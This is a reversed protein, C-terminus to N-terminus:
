RVRFGIPRHAAYPGDGPDVLDSVTMDRLETVDITGDSMARGAMNAYAQEFLTRVFRANGFDPQDLRRGVLRRVEDLAGEALTM